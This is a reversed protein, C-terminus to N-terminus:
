QVTRPHGAEDPHWLYAFPRGRLPVVDGQHTVVQAEVAGSSYVLWAVVPADVDTGNELGWRVMWGGGPLAGILLQDM